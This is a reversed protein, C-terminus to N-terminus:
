KEKRSAAQDSKTLAKVLDAKNMQSRGPLDRKTAEEHLDKVDWSEYDTAKAEAPKNEAKAEAAVAKPGRSLSGAGKFVVTEMWDRAADAEEGPPLKAPFGVTFEIAVSGDENVTVTRVDSVNRYQKEILLFQQTM